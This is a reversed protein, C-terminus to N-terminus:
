ARIRAAGSRRPIAARCRAALLPEPDFRWGTVGDASRAVHLQSIGRLDEVRVLLITEDGVRAAGPNFVSNAPYPVHAVTLIPNAAHRRFLMADEPRTVPLVDAPRARDLQQTGDVGRVAPADFRRRDDDATGALRHRRDGPGVAVPREVGAARAEAVARARRIHELAILWM